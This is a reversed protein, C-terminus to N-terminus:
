LPTLIVSTETYCRFESDVWAHHDGPSASGSSRCSVAQVHAFAQRCLVPAIGVESCILMLKGFPVLLTKVLM